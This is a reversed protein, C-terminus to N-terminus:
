NTVSPSGENISGAVSFQNEVKKNYLQDLEHEERKLDEICQDYKERIVNEMENKLKNYRAMQISESSKERELASKRFTNYYFTDTKHILDDLHSYIILKQLKKFDNGEENEINIFGWPYKRGRIIEGEYDFVTESAIVGFPMSEVISKIENFHEEDTEIPQPTFCSINNERILNNIESKRSSLEEPTYMDAKSIIPIFNCVQSVKQMTEIENFSLHDSPILYLCVHVRNDKYIRYPGQEREFYDMNLSDIYELVNLVNDNHYTITTTELSIGNEIIENKTVSLANPRDKQVIPAGFLSNVLTSSGLGRRGLVLVNIEFGNKISRERILDPVGSFGISIDLIKEGLDQEFTPIRM